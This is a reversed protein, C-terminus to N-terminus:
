SAWLVLGTLAELSAWPQEGLQLYMVTGLSAGSLVWVKELLFGILSIAYHNDLKQSRRTGSGGLGLNIPSKTKIFRYCNRHYTYM